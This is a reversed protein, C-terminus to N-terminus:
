ARLLQGHSRGSGRTLERLREDARPYKRFSLPAGGGEFRLETEIPGIKERNQSLLVGSPDYVPDPVLEAQAQRVAYEAIAEKLEPPIGLIPSSDDYDANIRPWEMAQSTKQPIGRWLWRDDVYDCSLIILGEKSSQGLNTWASPAGGRDKWYADVYASDVYANSNTLGSGTELVFAM